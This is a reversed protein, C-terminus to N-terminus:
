IQLAPSENDIDWNARERFLLKDLGLAPRIDVGQIQVDCGYAEGEVGAIKDLVRGGAMLLRLFWRESRLGGRRM